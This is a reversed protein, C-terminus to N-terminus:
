IFNFITSYFLIHPVNEDLLNLIPLMQAIHTKERSRVFFLECSIDFLSRNKFFIDSISIMYMFVDNCVIYKVRDCSTFILQRKANIRQFQKFNM